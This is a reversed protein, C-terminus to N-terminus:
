SATYMKETTTTYNELIVNDVFRWAAHLLTWFFM